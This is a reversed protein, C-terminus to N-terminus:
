VWVSTSPISHHGHLQLQPTSPSSHLGLSSSPQCRLETHPEAEMPFFKLLFAARQSPQGSHLVQALCGPRVRSSWLATSNCLSFVTFLARTGVNFRAAHGCGLRPKPARRDPRDATRVTGRSPRYLDLPFGKPIRLLSHGPLPEPVKSELRDGQCCPRQTCLTKRVGVHTSEGEM